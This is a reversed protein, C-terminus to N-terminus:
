GSTSWNARPIETIVTTTVQPPMGIYVFVNTIKEVTKKKNESTM